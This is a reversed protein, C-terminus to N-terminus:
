FLFSLLSIEPFWFPFLLFDRDRALRDQMLHASGEVTRDWLEVGRQGWEM